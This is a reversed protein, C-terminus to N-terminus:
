PDLHISDLLQRQEPSVALLRAQIMRGNVRLSTAWVGSAPSRSVERALDSFTRLRSAAVRDCHHEVRRQEEISSYVHSTSTEHHVIEHSASVRRDHPHLDPRLLIARPRPVSLGYRGQQPDLLIINFRGLNQAAAQPPERVLNAYPLAGFSQRLSCRWRATSVVTTTGILRGLPQSNLTQPARYPGTHFLTTRICESRYLCTVSGMLANDYADGVTGISAAIGELALYENLLDSHM